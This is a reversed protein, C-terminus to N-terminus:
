HSTPRPSTPAAHAQAAVVAAPDAGSATDPGSGAEGTRGVRRRAWAQVPREVYRASLLAVLYTLVAVVLADTAARGTWQQAVVLVAIPSQWLYMGYSVRGASSLPRWALLRSPGSRPATVLRGLVVCSCLSVVTVGVTEGPGTVPLGRVSAVVLLAAAPWFLLASARAIRERHLLLGAALACGWLLQDVDTDLGNYLREVSDPGSWLAIRDVLALACGLVALRMLWRVSGRRLVALLVLPWLLYFQEETALSWAHGVTGAGHGFAVMWNVVYVPTLAIGVFTDHRKPLDPFVTYMVLVGLLMVLMAPVLRASRRLYFAGLRVGGAAHEALLLTTILYGSLAFFVTVGIGGGRAVGLGVHSALVLLVALTRVGDLAPLYPLRGTPLASHTPAM